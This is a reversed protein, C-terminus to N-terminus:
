EQQEALTTVRLYPTGGEMAGCPANRPIESANPLWNSRQREPSLANAKSSAAAHAQRRKSPLIGEGGGGSSTRPTALPVECRALPGAIALARPALADQGRERRLARM